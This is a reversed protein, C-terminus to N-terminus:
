AAPVVETTSSVSSFTLLCSLLAYQHPLDNAWGLQTVLKVLRAGTHDFRYSGIKEARDAYM